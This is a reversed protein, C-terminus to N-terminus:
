PSHVQRRNAQRLLSFRGFPKPSNASCADLAYASEIKQSRSTNYPKNSDLDYHAQADGTTIGDWWESIRGTGDKDDSPIQAIWVKGGSEVRLNRFHGRAETADFGTLGAPLPSDDQYELQPAASGDMSIKIIGGKTTIKVAHWKDYDLSLKRSALTMKKTWISEGRTLSVSGDAFDLNLAYFQGARSGNPADKLMQIRFMIALSLGPDLSPQMVECELVGDGLQAEKWVSQYFRYGLLSIVGNNFERYGKCYNLGNYTEFNDPVDVAPGEEFSEGYILQAYLGGYIEHNLDELCGGYHLLSLNTQIIRAPRLVISASDVAGSTQPSQFTNSVQPGKIRENPDILEFPDQAFAVFWTLSLLIGPLFMKM